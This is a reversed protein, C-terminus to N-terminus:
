ADHGSRGQAWASFYKGSASSVFLTWMTWVQCPTREVLDCVCGGTDAAFGKDGVGYNAM